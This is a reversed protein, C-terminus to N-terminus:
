LQSPHFTGCSRHCSAFAPQSAAIDREALFPLIDTDKSIQPVREFSDPLSQIEQFKPSFNSFARWNRSSLRLTTALLPISKPLEWRNLCSQSPVMMEMCTAFAAESQMKRQGDPSCPLSPGLPFCLIRQERAGLAKRAVENIAALLGVLPTDIKTSEIWCTLWTWYFDGITLQEKKLQLTAKVAPHRSNVVNSVSVWDHEGLYLNHKDALFYNCFEKQKLLWRIVAVTSTWSM